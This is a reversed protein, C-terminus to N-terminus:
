QRLTFLSIQTNRVQVPILNITEYKNQHTKVNNKYYYKKKIKDIGISIICLKSKKLTLCLSKPM